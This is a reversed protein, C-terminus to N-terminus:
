ILPKKCLGEEEILRVKKAIRFIESRLVEYTSRQYQPLVEIGGRDELEKLLQVVIIARRNNSIRSCCGGQTKSITNLQPFKVALENWLMKMLNFAHESKITALTHTNGDLSKWLFSPIYNTEKKM